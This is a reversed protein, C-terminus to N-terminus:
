PGQNPQGCNRDDRGPNITQGESSEMIVTTDLEDDTVGKVRYGKEAAANVEEQLRTVSHGPDTLVRYHCASAGESKRELVVFIRRSKDQVKETLSMTDDVM